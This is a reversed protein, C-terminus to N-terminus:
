TPSSSVALLCALFRGDENSTTTTTTTTDLNFAFSFNALFVPFKEKAKTRENQGGIEIELSGRLNIPGKERRREGLLLGGFSVVFENGRKREGEPLSGNNLCNFLSLVLLSRSEIRSTSAAWGFDCPSWSSGGWNIGGSKREWIASFPLSGGIEIM